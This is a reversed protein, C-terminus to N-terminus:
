LRMYSNVDNIFAKDININSVLPILALDTIEQRRSYWKRDSILDLLTIPLEDYVPSKCNHKCIIHMILHLDEFSYAFMTYNDLVLKKRPILLKIEDLLHSPIKELEFLEELMERIATNFPEEGEKCTGGIGTITPNKKHPQYGALVHKGDTFLCGAAPAPPEKRFLKRYYQIINM